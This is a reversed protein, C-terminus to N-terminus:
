AKRNPVYMNVITIYEQHTSEMIMIYHREQCRAKHKTRMDANDSSLITESERKIITQMTHRKVRKIQLKNM